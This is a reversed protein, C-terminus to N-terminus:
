LKSPARVIHREKQLRDEKSKLTAQQNQLDRQRPTFETRISELASKAQPSEEVLRGYDVVGIKLEAAFVPSVVLTGVLALIGLGTKLRMLDKM